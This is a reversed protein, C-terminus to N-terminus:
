MVAYWLAYGVASWLFVMGLDPKFLLFFSALPRFQETM